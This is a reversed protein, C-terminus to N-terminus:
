EPQNIEFRPKKPTSFSQTANPQENRHEGRGKFPAVPIALERAADSLALSDRVNWLLIVRCMKTLELFLESTTPLILTDEVDGVVIIGSPLRVSSRLCWDHGTNISAWVECDKKKLRMMEDLLDKTGKTAKFRAQKAEMNNDIWTGKKAELWVMACGYSTLWLKDAKLGKINKKDPDALLKRAKNALVTEESCSTRMNSPKLSDFLKSWIDMYDGERNLFTGESWRILFEQILSTLRIFITYEFINNIEEADLVPESAVVALIQKMSKGSMYLQIQESLLKEDLRTLFKNCKNLAPHNQFSDFPDKLDFFKSSLRCATWSDCVSYFDDESMFQPCDEMLTRAADIDFIFSHELRETESHIALDYVIDVLFRGSPLAKQDRIKVKQKDLHYKVSNVSM